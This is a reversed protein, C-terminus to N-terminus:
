RAGVHVSEEEDDLTHVMLDVEASILDDEARGAIVRELPTMADDEILYLKNDDLIRSLIRVIQARRETAHTISEVSVEQVPHNGGMTHIRIM